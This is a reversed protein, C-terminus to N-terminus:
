RPDGYNESARAKRGVIRHLSRPGSTATGQLRTTPGAFDRM